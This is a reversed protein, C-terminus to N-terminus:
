QRPPWEDRTIAGDGDRDLRAVWVDTLEEESLSGDRDRDWWGFADVEDRRTEDGDMAAPRSERPEIASAQSPALSGTAPQNPASRPPATPSVCAFTVLGLLAIRLPM